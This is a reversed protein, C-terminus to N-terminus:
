LFHYYWTTLLFRQQASKYAEFMVTCTPMHYMTCVDRLRKDLDVCAYFHDVCVQQAIATTSHSGCLLAQSSSARQPVSSM